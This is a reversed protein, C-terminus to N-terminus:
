QAKGYLRKAETEILERSAWPLRELDARLFVIVGAQRAKRVLAEIVEPPTASTGLHRQLSTPIRHERYAGRNKVRGDTEHSVSMVGM